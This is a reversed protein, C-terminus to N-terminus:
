PFDIFEIEEGCKAVSRFQQLKDDQFYKKEGILIVPLWGPEGASRLHKVMRVTAGPVNKEIMDWIEMPDDGNINLEVSFESM